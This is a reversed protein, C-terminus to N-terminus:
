ITCVVCTLEKQANYPPCRFGNCSAEVHYFLAGNTDAGSGPISEQSSDVCEYMSRRHIRHESMLYGHYEKTWSPPCTTKAPIMLVTERITALCVACPVNYQNTGAIPDQYESGYLVSHNQVLIRHGLTYQPDPPMCLHNAGGGIHNYYSGGVRGNYVMRTGSVSPCSSKGWRTYIVGGSRPGPPGIPGRFGQFGRDGKLGPPGQSGGSPGPEGRSGPVGDRGDRGPLGQPGQPGDRGDRGDLGRVTACVPTRTKNLTSTNNVVRKERVSLPSSGALCSFIRYKYCSLFDMVKM